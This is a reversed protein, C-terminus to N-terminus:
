CLCNFPVSYFQEVNNDSQRANRRMKRAVISFKHFFYEESHKTTM